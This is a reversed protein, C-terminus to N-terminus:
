KTGEGQGEGALPSPTCPDIESRVLLRIGRDSLISEIREIVVKGRGERSLALSLPFFIRSHLSRRLEAIFFKEFMVNNVFRGNARSIM